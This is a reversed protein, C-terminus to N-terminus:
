QEREGLTIRVFPVPYIRVIRGGRDIYLGVVGYRWSLEIKM